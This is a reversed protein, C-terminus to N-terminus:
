GPVTELGVYGPGCSRSVPGSSEPHPNGAECLYEVLHGVPPFVCTSTPSRSQLGANLLVSSDFLFYFSPQKLYKNLLPTLSLIREPNLRIQPPSNVSFECNEFHPGTRTSTVCFCSLRGIQLLVSPATVVMLVEHFGGAANLDDLPAVAYVSKVVNFILHTMNIVQPRRVVRNWMQRM